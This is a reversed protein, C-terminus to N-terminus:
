EQERLVLLSIGGFGKAGRPPAFEKFHLEDIRVKVVDSRDPPQFELLEGERYLGKLIALESAAFGDRHIHHGDLTTMRDYLMIPVYHRLFRPKPIPEARLRWETLGGDETFVCSFKLSFRSGTFDNGLDLVNNGYLKLSSSQYPEPYKLYRWPGGDVSLYILSISSDDGFHSIIDLPVDNPIWEDNTPDSERGVRAFINGYADIEPSEGLWWLIKNTQAAASEYVKVASIHDQGDSGTGGGIFIPYDLDPSPKYLESAAAGEVDAGVQDWNYHNYEDGASGGWYWSYFRVRWVGATGGSGDFEWAFWMWDGDVYSYATQQAALTITSKATQITGAADKWRFKMYNKSGGDETGTELVAEWLIDENVNDYTPFSGLPDGHTAIVLSNGVYNVGTFDKLKVLAYVLRKDKVNADTDDSLNRGGSLSSGLYHARNAASHWSSMVWAPYQLKFKADLKRLTKAESTGFRIDGITIYSWLSSSPTTDVQCTQTNGSGVLDDGWFALSKVEYDGSKNWLSDHVVWALNGLDIKGIHAAFTSMASTDINYGFYGYEGRVIVCRCYPEYNTPYSKPLNKVILPSVQLNGESDIIANRLGLTTGILIGSGLYSAMSLIQEGDPAEWVSRPADLVLGNAATSADFGIHYISSKNTASFGSAFIGPGGEVFATWIWDTMQHTFLATAGDTPTALDLIQHMSNGVCVMLRDKVFGMAQGSALKNVLVHTPPTSWDTDTTVSYLGTTKWFYILSGDTAIGHFMEGSTPVSHTIRGQYVNNDKVDYKELYTVDFGFLCDNVVVMSWFEKNIYYAGTGPGATNFPIVPKLLGKESFPDGRQILKSKYRSSFESDLIDQGSGEHWSHQSRPWLSGLSQEGPESSIDMRPLRLPIPELTYARYEFPSEQDLTSLLYGRGDLALAWKSGIGSKLTAM